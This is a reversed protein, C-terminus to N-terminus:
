IIIKYARKTFISLFEISVPLTYDPGNSGVFCELSGYKMRNCPLMKGLRTTGIRKTAPQAVAIVTM